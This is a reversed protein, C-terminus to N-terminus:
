SVVGPVTRLGGFGAADRWALERALRLRERELSALVSFRPASSRRRRVVGLREVAARDELPASEVAQRPENM